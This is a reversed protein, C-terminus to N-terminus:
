KVRYVCADMDIEVRAEVALGLRAKAQAGVGEIAREIQNRQEILRAFAAAEHASMDFVRPAPAEPPVIHPLNVMEPEASM